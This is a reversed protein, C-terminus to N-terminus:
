KKHLQRGAEAAAVVMDLTSEPYSAQVGAGVAGEVLPADALKVRSRRDDNLMSLAAQASIIGSGLDTIIVVGQDKCAKDIASLVKDPDTGFNGYKDGGAAVISLNENGGEDAAIIEVMDCIGEAVKQSHAVVVIGIM